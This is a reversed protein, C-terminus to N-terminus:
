YNPSRKQFFKREEKKKKFDKKALALTIVLDYNLEPTSEKTVQLRNIQMAKRRLMVGDNVDWIQFNQWRKAIVQNLTVMTNHAVEEVTSLREVDSDICNILNNLVYNGLDIQIHLVLVIFNKVPVSDWMEMSRVGRSQTLEGKSLCLSKKYM